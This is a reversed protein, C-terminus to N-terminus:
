VDDGAYSNVTVDLVPKWEPKLGALEADDAAIMVALVRGDDRIALVITGEERYAGQQNTYLGRYTIYALERIRGHAPAPTTQSVTLDSYLESTLLIDVAEQMHAEMTDLVAPAYVQALCYLYPKFRVLEAKRPSIQTSEWGPPVPVYTDGGITLYDGDPPDPPPPPPPPPPTETPSVTPLVTPGATPSSAGLPRTGADGGGRGGVFLWVVLGVAALGLFGVLGLLLSRGGGGSPPAPVPAPAAPSPTAPFSM